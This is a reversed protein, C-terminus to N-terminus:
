SISISCIKADTVHLAYARTCSSMCPWFFSFSLVLVDMKIRLKDENSYKIGMNRMNWVHHLLHDMEAWHAPGSCCAFRGLVGVAYSITPM